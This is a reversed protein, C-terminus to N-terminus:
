RSIPLLRIKLKKECGYKRDAYFFDPLFKFFINVTLKCETKKRKFIKEATSVSNARKDNNEVKTTVYKDETSVKLM